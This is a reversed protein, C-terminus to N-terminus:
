KKMIDITSLDIMNYKFRLEDKLASLIEEVPQEAIFSASINKNAIEPHKIRITFRYIHELKKVFEGFPIDTYIYRGTTWATNYQLDTAQTRYSGTSTNYIIEDQPKLIVNCKGAEFRVSGLALTLTVNKSQEDSKLNFTTGLVKTKTGQSHITFIKGDDKRVDFFAEGSLNVMRNKKGFDSTFTISSHKNLKIKTGDELVYDAIAEQTAYTYHHTPHTQYYYFISCSLLLLFVAAAKHFFSLRTNRTHNKRAAHKMQERLKEEFNGSADKQLVVAADWYEKIRHYLLADEDSKRLMKRLLDKEKEDAEGSLIKSVLLSFENEMSIFDTKM